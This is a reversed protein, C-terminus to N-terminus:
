LMFFFILQIFSFSFSSFFDMELSQYTVRICLWRFYKRKGESKEEYATYTKRTRKWSENCEANFHSYIMDISQFFIAINSQLCVNPLCLEELTYVNNTHKQICLIFDFGFKRYLHKQSLPTHQHINIYLRFTSQYWEDNNEDSFGFICVVLM